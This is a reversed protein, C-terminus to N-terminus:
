RGKTRLSRGMTRKSALFVIKNEKGERGGEREEGSEHPVMWLFHKCISLNAGTSLYYPHIFKVSPCDLILFMKFVENISPGYGDDGGGRESSNGWNRKHARTM